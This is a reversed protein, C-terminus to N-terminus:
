GEQGKPQPSTILSIIESDNMIDKLDSTRCFSSRIINLRYEERNLYPNTPAASDAREELGIDKIYQSLNSPIKNVYFRKSEDSFYQDKLINLESSTHSHSSESDSICDSSEGDNARVHTGGTSPSPNNSQHSNMQIITNCDHIMNYTFYLFLSTINIPPILSFILPAILYKFLILIIFRYVRQYLIIYKHQVVKVIGDRPFATLSPTRYYTYIKHLILKNLIQLFLCLFLLFILKYM